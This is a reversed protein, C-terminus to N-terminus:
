PYKAANKVGNPAYSNKYRATRLQKARCRRSHKTQWVHWAEADHQAEDLRSSGMTPENSDKPSEAENGTPENTMSQNTM